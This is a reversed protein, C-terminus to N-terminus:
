PQSREHNPMEVRHHTHGVIRLLRPKFRQRYSVSRTVWRVFVFGMALGALALLIQLGESMGLVDSVSTLMLM